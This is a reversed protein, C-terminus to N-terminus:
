SRYSANIHELSFLFHADFTLPYQMGRSELGYQGKPQAGVKNPTQPKTGRTADPHRDGIRRVIEATMTKGARVSYRTIPSVPM